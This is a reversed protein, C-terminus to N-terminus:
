VDLVPAPPPMLFPRARIWRSAILKEGRTVPLGAHQTDPDARGDPLVNRFVLLDGRAGRFRLGSRLFTTEGGQYGDTLYVLATLVRQNDGDPLADVHPKYEQGVRYRLIQLPEGQAPTTGTAAAIRRNLAHVAPNEAVFPFSMGDSTRIPNKFHRGTQPDIVMSPELWPTSEAILFDCEAPTLFARHCVIDPRDSLRQADPLVRPDGTPSLSMAEILRLQARAGPDAKARRQLLAVAAPWDTSGGTGNGLFATYIRASEEHGARAAQGFLDRSAALDRRVIQGSLRWTALVFLAEPDRRGEPGSLLRYAEAFRGAGALANARAILSPGSNPMMIGTMASVM